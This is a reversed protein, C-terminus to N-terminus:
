PEPGESGPCRIRHAPKEQSGVRWNEKEVPGFVTLRGRRVCVSKVTPQRMAPSGGSQDQEFPGTMAAPVQVLQLSSNLFGYAPKLPPELQRLRGYPM